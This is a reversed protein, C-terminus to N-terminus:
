PRALFEGIREWVTADYPGMFPCNMAGFPLAGNNESGIRKSVKGWHHAIHIIHDIALEEDESAPGLDAFVHFAQEYIEKM